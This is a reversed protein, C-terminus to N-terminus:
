APNSDTRGVLREYRQRAAQPSGLGLGFSIQQWTLGRGRAMQLLGSELQDLEARVEPMLTLAAVIDAQDVEPENAEVQAIGSMLFSVLRVAEHPGLMQPNVQRARQASTAAHREAIRFYSAHVRRARAQDPDPSAFADDSETM